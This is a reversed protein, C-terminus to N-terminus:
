RTPGCGPLGTRIRYLGTSATVYLFPQEHLTTLALNSPREPMPLLALLEGAASFVRVGPHRDSQVAAYLNGDPDIAIGDAGKEGAFDVFVEQNNASGDANLAYRLIRMEGIDRTPVDEIRRDLLRIDHEVVYLIREDPSLAIGNPKSVDALILNVTGDGDVRYVGFVPQEISEHGLYRPDTFYIRGQRDIILDNPSNFPRGKYLGAVINSRGTEMDTRIIARAGFDAGCAAVMCGNADFQIGAAMGSPSRFIRTQGSTPDFVWIIGATMGTRFTATVDCFYVKGDPSEVPDETWNGSHFVRELKAGAVGVRSDSYTPAYTTM